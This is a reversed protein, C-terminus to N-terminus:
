YTLKKGEQQKHNIHHNNKCWLNSGRPYSTNLSFSMIDILIVTELLQYHDRLSFLIKINSYLFYANNAYMYCFHGQYVWTGEGKNWSPFIHAGSNSRNKFRKLTVTMFAWAQADLPGSTLRTSGGSGSVLYPRKEPLRLTDQEVGAEGAKVSTSALRPGKSVLARESEIM